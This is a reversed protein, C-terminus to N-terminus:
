ATIKLTIVTTISSLDNGVFNSVFICNFVHMLPMCLEVYSIWLSFITLFGQKSSHSLFFQTELSNQGAADDNGDM